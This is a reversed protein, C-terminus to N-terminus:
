GAKAQDDMEAPNVYREEIWDAQQIWRQRAQYAAVQAHMFPISRIEGPTFEWGEPSVLHKGRLIWGSWTRSIPELEGHVCLSILVRLWRPARRTRKWRRATSLHAGTIAVLREAPVGYLSDTGLDM